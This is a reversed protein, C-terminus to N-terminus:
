RAFLGFHQRQAHITVRRPTRPMRGILSARCTLRALCDIVRVYVGAPEIGARWRSLIEHAFSHNGDDILQQNNYERYRNDQDEQEQRAENLALLFLLHRVILLAAIVM